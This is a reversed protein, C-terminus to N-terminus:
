IETKFANKIFSALFGTIAGAVIFPMTPRIKKLALKYIGINQKELNKMGKVFVDSALPKFNELVSEFDKQAAQTRESIMNIMKYYDADKEQTTLPLAYKSVYGVGAGVAAAAFGNKLDSKHGNQIAEISM